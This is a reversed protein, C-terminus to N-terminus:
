WHTNLLRYRDVAHREDDQRDMNMSHQLGADMVANQEDHEDALLEFRHNQVAFLIVMM